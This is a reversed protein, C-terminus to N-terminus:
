AGLYTSKILGPSGNGGNFSGGPGGVVAGAGGAGNGSAPGGVAGANTTSGIRVAAGGKGYPSSGGHSGQPYISVGTSGFNALQFYPSSAVQAGPGVPANIGQVRGATYSGSEDYGNGAAGGPATIDLFTSAGGATGSTIAATGGNGAAGIIANIIDGATLRLIGTLYAGSGGGAAAGYSLLSLYGGGGGGGLVEVLFWGTYPVVWPGSTTIDPLALISGKLELIAQALGAEVQDLDGNDLVGPAYRNAIFQALGSAMFTAQRNARNEVARQALGPQHGRLRLNSDQYSALTLLDGDDAEIGQPAFQLIENIAGDNLSM